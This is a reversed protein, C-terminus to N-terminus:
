SGYIRDEYLAFSNILPQAMSKSFVFRVERSKTQPVLLIRKYGITTGRGIEVWNGDGDLAEVVFEEVRQGLPIYEQLVVRNFTKPGDLKVSLVPKTDEEGAAWFTGDDVDLVKDANWRRAHRSSAEASAGAALNDSFISDLAARFEMLRTSDAKDIRGSTDPPVNLLLLANRGISCYYIELLDNVSKLDPTESSKWFWGPRISVDCEAPVWAQGGQVGHGLVEAPPAGAGPEFGATDLTSWNTESAIGRENGVWRCGPGVDSFMVADKQLSLVTNHFRTWDYDQHKGAPGEGNAGDFWMEYIPGYSLASELTKVYVDNYAPSGYHPDHRDWPSVYVGAKLGEAGCADM